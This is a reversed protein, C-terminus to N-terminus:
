KSSIELKYSGDALLTWTLNAGGASLMKNKLTEQIAKIKDNNAQLREKNTAM